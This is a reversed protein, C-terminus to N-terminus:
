INSGSKEELKKIKRESALTVLLNHIAKSLDIVMRSNMKKYLIEIKKNDDLSLNPQGKFDNRIEGFKKIIAGLNTRLDKIEYDACISTLFEEFVKVNKKFDIKESDRIKEFNLRKGKHKEQYKDIFYLLSNRCEDIANDYMEDRWLYEIDKFHKPESHLYREKYEIEKIDIIYGLYKFKFYFYRSCFDELDIQDFIIHIRGKKQGKKELLKSIYELFFGSEGLIDLYERLKLNTINYTCGDNNLIALNIFSEMESLQENNYTAKLSNVLIEKFIIFKDDNKEKDKSPGPTSIIEKYYREIFSGRNHPSEVDSRVSVKLHMDSIIESIEKAEETDIKRLM